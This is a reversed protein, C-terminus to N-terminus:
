GQRCEQPLYRAPIDVPICIWRVQQRRDMAPALLISRGSLEPILPGLALRVRGSTLSVNVAELFQTGPLAEAVDFAPAGSPSQSVFWAELQRQLPQIAALGEAIRSRVVQDTYASQLSPIVVYLALLITAGGALAAPMPAIVTRRSLWKAARDPRRTRAEASRVLRRARRYVLTNAALAGVVGPVLWILFLAVALSIAGSDGLNPEIFRFAALALLPWVAFAIGPLWLRRYIAWVGPALLPAWNWSPFSRGVREYELCRPAYYDAGPGVAMRYPIALSPRVIRADEPGDADPPLHISDLFATATARGSPEEWDAGDTAGNGAPDTDIGLTDGCTAFLRRFANL